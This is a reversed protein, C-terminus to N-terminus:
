VNQYHVGTSRSQWTRVLLYIKNKFEQLCCPAFKERVSQAPTYYFIHALDGGSIGVFNTSVPGVGIPTVSTDIHEVLAGQLHALDRETFGSCRSLDLSRLRAARSLLPLLAPELQNRVLSLHALRALPFWRLADAGIRAM